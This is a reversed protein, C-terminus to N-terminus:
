YGIDELQAPDVGRQKESDVLKQVESRLREEEAQSLTPKPPMSNAKTTYTSALASMYAWAARDGLKNLRRYYEHEFSKYFNDAKSQDPYFVRELAKKLNNAETYPFPM